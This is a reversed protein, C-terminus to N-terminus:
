GIADKRILDLLGSDNNIDVGWASHCLHAVKDAVRNGLRPVHFFSVVKLTSLLFKVDSLILEIEWPCTSTKNLHNIIIMSDGEIHLKNIRLQLVNQIGLKLALAEAKLPSQKGLKKYCIHIPHGEM